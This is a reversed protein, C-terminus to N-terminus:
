QNLCSKLAQLSYNTYPQLVQLKKTMFEILIKQDIQESFAYHQWILLLQLRIQLKKLYHYNSLGVPILSLTLISPQVKM